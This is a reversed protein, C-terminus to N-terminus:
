ARGGRGGWWRGRGAQWLEVPRSWWWRAESRSTAGWQKWRAKRSAWYTSCLLWGNLSPPVALCCSLLTPVAVPHLSQPPSGMRLRRILFDYTMEGNVWHWKKPWKHQYLITAQHWTWRILPSAFNDGSIITISGHPPLRSAIGGHVLTPTEFQELLM